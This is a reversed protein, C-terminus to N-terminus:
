PSKLMQLVMGFHKVLLVAYHNLILFKQSISLFNFSYTIITTSIFCKLIYQWGFEGYIQDYYFKPNECFM